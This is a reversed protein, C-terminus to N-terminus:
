IGAGEMVTHVEDRFDRAISDSLSYQGMVLLPPSYIHLTILDQGGAQLNSLRHIDQDYTACVFGQPLKRTRVEFLCADDSMEFVTEVGEGKLVRVGCASGRHDHIPSSQGDRWCLILAHYTPGAHMLNRRYRDPSFQLFPKISELDVELQALGETLTSLPIAEKHQDLQAFWQELTLKM